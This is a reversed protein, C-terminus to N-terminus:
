PGFQGRARAFSREIFAVADNIAELVVPDLSKADPSLDKLGLTIKEQLDALASAAGAGSAEACNKLAAEFSLQLTLERMALKFILGGQERAVRAEFVTRRKPGVEERALNIAEQLMAVATKLCASRLLQRSVSGPSGASLPRARSDWEPALIPCDFDGARAPGRARNETPFVPCLVDLCGPM